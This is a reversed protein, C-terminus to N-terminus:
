IANYKGIFVEDRPGAVGHPGLGAFVHSFIKVPGELVVGLQDADIRSSREMAPLRVDAELDGRTRIAGHSEAEVRHFAFRSSFFLLCRWALEIARRSVIDM